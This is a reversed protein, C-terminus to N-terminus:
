RILETYVQMSRDMTMMDSAHKVTYTTATSGTKFIVDSELIDVPECYFVHDAFYTDKEASIRKDGTLPRMCGTLSLHTSLTNVVGGAADQTVAPRLVNWGTEFYKKMTKM